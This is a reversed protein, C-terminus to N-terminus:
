RLEAMVRNLEQAMQSLEQVAASAQIMGEATETVIQNIENVAMNIEESTASQQEAATAISAVVSSSDSALSVIETLAEGSSNALETAEAVARSAEAVADINVRSSSQIASISGGVEGTAQMTKEALKRVEDAVVAFGRGAEGARAAEIAANLALLNTQDAIDSIVNMVNGISEAQKGLEQMNVQLSAAVNNVADIAGVVRNVLGSGDDAKRRTLETQESAQGASRAVELVTSNMETMASATSEVRTRQVEAGRSVQEVQASLEESAAAVRNSIESAQAAVNMIIRQTDKIATLDTILELVSALKGHADYRPIVTYSIDMDTGRPHARTEARASRKTELARNLGNANDNADEMVFLQAATKGRYDDGALERAIANIYSARGEHDLMIVPSPISELVSRFETLIANTGKVLTAFEGSFKDANGEAGLEGNEIHSELTRYEDLIGNLATPIQQMAAVMEGVEGKERIKVKYAFDGRSIAGAFVGLERLVRLIGLISIAALIIGLVLAGASLGLTLKQASANSELMMAGHARMDADLGEDLVSLNRDIQESIKGIQELSGQYEKCRAVMDTLATMLSAYIQKAEALRERTGSLEIFTSIADLKEGLQTMTELARAADKDDRSQSFRSVASRATGLQAMSDMIAKFVDRNSEPQAAANILVIQASMNHSSPLVVDGYQKLVAALSSRVSDVAKKLQADGAMVDALVERREPLRIFPDAEKILKSINDLDEMAKGLYVSEDTTGFLYINSTARGMSSIMEGSLVNFRALRRYETFGDSAKQLGTYGLVALVAAIIIMATFGLIIKFKTTM